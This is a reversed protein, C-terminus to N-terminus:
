SGEELNRVPGIVVPIDLCNAGSVGRNSARRRAFDYFHVVKVPVEKKVQM